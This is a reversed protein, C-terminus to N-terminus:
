KPRQYRNLYDRGLHNITFAGGLRSIVHREVANRIVVVPSRLVLEADTSVGAAYAASNFFIVLTVLLYVLQRLVFAHTISTKVSDWSVQLSLVLGILTTTRDKPEM